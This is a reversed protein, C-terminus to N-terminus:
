GALAILPQKRQQPSLQQTLKLAKDLHIQAALLFRHTSVISRNGIHVRHDPLSQVSQFGGSLSVFRDHNEGAVVAEMEALVAEM